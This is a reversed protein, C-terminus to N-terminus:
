AAHSAAWALLSDTDWTNVIRDLPLGADAALDCGLVQWDLQFWAHADADIAVKAGADRVLRLLDVPPDLREPRANIEVAKDLHAAAAFVVDHDFDYPPREYSGRTMRGTPHGLVDVHPNMLASVLRRTMTARDQRFRSHVSAVVVDLRALVEDPHDLSGDELIDVECGTLVRFPALRATVDRVEEIQTELREVGLGNAIELGGSHDTIALWTQGRRAAARAMDEVSGSGDSAGTHCHCDGQLAALIAASEASRPKLAPQALKALYDPVESALAQEIVRATKEGIGPLDTLSHRAARQRLEEVGVERAVQAANRFARVRHGPSLDRELLDAILDLAGDPELTVTGPSPDM